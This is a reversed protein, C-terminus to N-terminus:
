LERVFLFSKDGTGVMVIPRAATSPPPTPRRWRGKENNKGWSVPEVVKGEKPTLMGLAPGGKREAKGVDHARPVGGISRELRQLHEFWSGPLAAACYLM